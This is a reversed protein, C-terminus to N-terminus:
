NVRENKVEKRIPKIDNNPLVLPSEELVEIYKLDESIKIKQDPKVGVRPCVVMFIFNELDNKIIRAEYEKEELLAKRSSVNRQESEDFYFKKASM